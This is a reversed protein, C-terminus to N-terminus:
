ISDTIKGNIKKSPEIYEKVIEWEEDKGNSPYKMEKEEVM